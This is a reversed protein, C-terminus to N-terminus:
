VKVADKARCDQADAHRLKAGVSAICRVCLTLTMSTANTLAHALRLCRAAIDDAKRWM